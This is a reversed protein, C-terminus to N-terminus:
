DEQVSWSVDKYLKWRDTSTQSINKYVEHYMRAEPNYNRIQQYLQNSLWNPIYTYCDM